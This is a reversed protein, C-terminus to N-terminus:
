APPAPRLAQLTFEVVHARYQRLERSSTLDLDFIASLTYQNSICISCLGLISVFLRVPNIDQRFTGERAGRSLLEEIVAILHRHMTTIKSSGRVHRAHHRNEDTILAVVDRLGVCSDFIREILRALGDKAPLDAIDLQEERARFRAYADELVATYLREKNGFYHYVLQKNVGAVVAIDDVRAGTLGKSAFEATAAELLLRQTNEPDRRRARASARTASAPRHVRGANSQTPMRQEEATAPLSGQRAGDKDV